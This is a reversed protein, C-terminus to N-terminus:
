QMLRELDSKNVTVILPCGAKIPEDPDVVANVDNDEKIAIVNIRYEKRLNLKKLSKGIWEKKPMLEVLSIIDVEGNVNAAPLALLVTGIFIALLFGLLIQGTTSM